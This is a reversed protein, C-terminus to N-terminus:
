AKLLAMLRDNEADLKEIYANIDLPLNKIAYLDDPLFHYIICRLIFNHMKLVALIMKVDCNHASMKSVSDYYVTFAETDFTQKEHLRYIFTGPEDGALNQTIAELDKPM